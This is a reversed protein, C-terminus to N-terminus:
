SLGMERARRLLAKKSVELRDVMRDIDGGCERHCREIEETSLDGATRFRPNNQILMYLSARSVRLQAAAGVIEWRSARLAEAIEAETVESPKRRPSRSPAESPEVPASPPAERGARADRLLREVPPGLEVRGLGRSGVVLQRVVNRLQRVNGPWDLEALRAVLSAPLWPEGSRPELHHAEGIQELEDRLIHRLLRGIDDRRERLPPLVIEYSALRHLLPARFSQDAIRAELDADTAAIIRVDAKQARQAGIGQIEGSELARLLMAQLEPAAEGDPSALGPKV